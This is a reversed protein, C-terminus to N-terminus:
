IALRLGGVDTHSEPSLSSRYYPRCCEEDSAYCGGRQVKADGNNPGLPNNVPHTPYAAFWDACWEWVGGSMDYIGLENPMKSKVPLLKYSFGSRIGVKSLHNSGSYKYGKSLNGGRAAFEWEAETLMRFKMGTLINLKDIFIKSDIWSISHMPFTPDINNYLHPNNAGMILYWLKQTVPTACIHFEDVTVKHLPYHQLLLGKDNGMIFTGASVKIMQITCDDIIVANGITKILHLQKGCSRCYISDPHNDNGCNKCIM